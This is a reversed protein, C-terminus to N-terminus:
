WWRHRGAEDFLTALYEAFGDQDPVMFQGLLFKEFELRMAKASQYREDPNESIARLIIKSLEKPVDPNIRHPPVVTEELEELLMQTNEVEHLLQGTFLEYLVLGLSYLDSRHDTGRRRVQEPAMYPYKGVIVDHENEVNSTKAKAVGFDTLKPVGRFSIMINSPCIDRHVIGLHIGSRNAKNHAYHLGSLIRTCIWVGYEVPVTRGLRLHREIFELLTVGFVHEMVIFYEHRTEGLQFVQVINPHILNASLRAEDLFMSVAKSKGGKKPLFKIAMLKSFHKVGVKEALYVRGMGGKGLLHLVRYHGSGRVSDGPEARRRFLSLLRSRRKPTSFLPPQSDTM